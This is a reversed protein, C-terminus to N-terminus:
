KAQGVEVLDREGRDFRWLPQAPERCSGFQRTGKGTSQWSQYTMM